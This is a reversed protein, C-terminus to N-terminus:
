NQATDALDALQQLLGEYLSLGGSGYGSKHLVIGDPKLAVTSSQQKINFDAVMRGGPYGIPFTLGREQGYAVIESDSAAVDISLAYFDVKDSYQPYIESLGQM